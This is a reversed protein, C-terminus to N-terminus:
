MCNHSVAFLVYLLALTQRCVPIVSMPCAAHQHVCLVVPAMAGLLSGCSCCQGRWLKSSSSRDLQHPHRVLVATVVCTHSSCRRLLWLNCIM